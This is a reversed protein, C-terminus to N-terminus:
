GVLTCSQVRTWWWREMYIFKICYHCNLFRHLSYLFKHVRCINRFLRCLFRHLCFNFFNIKEGFLCKKPSFINRLIWSHIYIHSLIHFFHKLLNQVQHFISKKFFKKWMRILIYMRSNQSVNTTWFLAKKQSFDM